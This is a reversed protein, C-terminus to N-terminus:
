HAMPMVKPTKGVHDEQKDKIRNYASRMTLLMNTGTDGDPFLFFM